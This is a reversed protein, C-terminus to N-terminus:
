IFVINVNKEPHIAVVSSGCKPKMVKTTFFFRLLFPLNSSQFLCLIVRTYALHERKHLVNPFFRYKRFFCVTLRPRPPNQVSLIDSGKNESLWHGLSEYRGNREVFTLEVPNTLDSHCM